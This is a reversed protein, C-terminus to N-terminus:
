ESEEEMIQRVAILATKEVPNKTSFMYVYRRTFFQYFAAAVLVFLSFIRELAIMFIIKIMKWM